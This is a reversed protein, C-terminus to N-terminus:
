KRNLINLYASMEPDLKKEEMLSDVPADTVVSKVDATAKTSFYNERITQVKTQFTKEDEYSLEEALGKFKEVETDTLGESIESVIESRKMESLVQSLEINAALQEDLKAELQEVKEELSSLVDFKEEPVDIYHEEFVGKLSSVFGELIESKMGRELAIENQAIWQEVVYDLYGDVKEVLGEQYQAMSEELMANYEEELRSVEDKVRTIVAAEFITAAKDKFEESLDEGNILAAVDESSDYAYDEKVSKGKIKKLLKLAQTAHHQTSDSTSKEKTDRLHSVSLMSLHHHLTDMTENYKPHGIGIAETLEYDEKVSAKLHSAEPASANQTARNPKKTTANAAEDEDDVDNRANDPNQPHNTGGTLHNAEPASAGHKGSDQGGEAGAMKVAESVETALEAAKSEALLEAIKQEISM